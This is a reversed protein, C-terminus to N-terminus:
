AVIRFRRSKIRHRPKGGPDCRARRRTVPQGLEGPGVEVGERVVAQGLSKGILENFHGLKVLFKFYILRDNDFLFFASEIIPVCIVSSVYALLPFLLFFCLM